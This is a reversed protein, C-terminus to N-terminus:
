VYTDNKVGRRTCRSVEHRVYILSLISFWVLNVFYTKSCMKKLLNHNEYQLM